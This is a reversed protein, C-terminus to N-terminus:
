ADIRVIHEFEFGLRSLATLTQAATLSDMPLEIVVAGERGDAPVLRMQKDDDTM